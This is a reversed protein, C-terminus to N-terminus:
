QQPQEDYLGQNNMFYKGARIEKPNNVAENSMYDEQLTAVKTSLQNLIAVGNPLKSIDEIYDIHNGEEDVGGIKLSFVSNEEDDSLQTVYPMFEPFSEIFNGSIPVHYLTEGRENTAQETPINFDLFGTHKDNIYKQGNEIRKVVNIFGTRPNQITYHVNNEKDFDNVLYNELSMMKRDATQGAPTQNTLIYEKGDYEFIDGAGHTSTPAALTGKLSLGEKFKIRKDSDEPNLDAVDKIFNNLTGAGIKKGTSKDYWTGNKLLGFSDEKKSSNDLKYDQEKNTRLETPMSFEYEYAASLNNRRSAVRKNITEEIFALTEPSDKQLGKLYSEINGDNIVEGVTAEYYDRYENLIDEPTNEDKILNSFVLSADRRVEDFSKRKYLNDGVIDEVPTDNYYSQEETSLKNYKSAPLNAPKSRYNAAEAAGEMFTKGTTPLDEHTVPRGSGLGANIATYGPKAIPTEKGALKRALAADRAEAPDEVFNDHVRNVEREDAAQGIEQRILDDVESKSAGPFVEDYYEVQQAYEKTSKYANFANERDEPSFKLYEVKGTRLFRDALEKNGGFHKDAWAKQEKETGKAAQLGLSYINAKKNNFYEEQVPRYNLKSTLRSNFLRLKGTEPDVSSYSGDGVGMAQLGQMRMKKANEQEEQIRKFNEEVTLRRQDGLYDVALSGVQGTMNEYNGAKAIEELQKQYQSSIEQNLSSDGENAMRSKNLLDIKNANALNDYYRKQLVDGTEKVQELPLGVYQPVYKSQSLQLNDYLGM